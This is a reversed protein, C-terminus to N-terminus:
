PVLVVKGRNQRAEVIEHARAAQELPLEAHITPTLQWVQEGHEAYRDRHNRAFHAMAFGTITKAGSLLDFAPVTGGGSAFFILRGGPRAAALARPLVDGGAGDLVVDVPEAPSLDDYDLVEDAGLGYLFDAKIKSAVAVVRGAGRRRAAQVLLHGVGSAAATVLVSEGPQVAAADLVGLAVHGSRVLAVAHVFSAGAPLRSAMVAPATVVGAYSGGFPLAAVREGVAWGTVGPGVDIVEGAVEGGPVAPFPGTTERVRRVAPRTVGIAAARILLEGEGPVPPQGDEARLVEPGGASHYRIVRM